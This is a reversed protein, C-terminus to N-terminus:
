GIARWISGRARVRALLAATEAEGVAVVHGQPQPPESRWGYASLVTPAEHYDVLVAQVLARFPGFAQREVVELLEIRAAPAAAVFAEAGGAAAAIAALVGAHGMVYDVGALGAATAMPLPKPRSSSPEGPFLTDIVADLFAPPFVSM